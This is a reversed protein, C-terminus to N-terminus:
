RGNSSITPAQAGDVVTVDALPQGAVTCNEFRVGSIGQGKLVIDNRATWAINRLTIDSVTGPGSDRM